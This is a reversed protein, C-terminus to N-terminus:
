VKSDISKGKYSFSISPLQLMSFEVRGPQVDIQAKNAKVNLIINAEDIKIDVTGGVFEIKPRSKPSSDINYSGQDFSNNYAIEAIADVSSEIAMMTNGESTISDIAVAVAQKGKAAADEVLARNSKLNTENFCQQQDIKVKLQETNIIVKVHKQKMDFDAKPQSIQQRANITKVGIKSDVKNISIM